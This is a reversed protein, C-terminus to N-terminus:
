FVYLWRKPPAPDDQGLRVYVTMRNGGCITNNRLDVGALLEYRHSSDADFFKFNGTEPDDRAYQPFWSVFVVLLKPRYHELKEPLTRLPSVLGVLDVVYRGSFYGMAGIDNVAIADGAQTVMGAFKALTIQIKNINQVNWGYSEARGPLILVQMALCAAAATMGAHRWRHKMQKMWLDIQNWALTALIMGIPIVYLIYRKESATTDLFLSLALPFGIAYLVLIPWRRITLAAGLLLFPLLLAPEDLMVSRRFPVGWLEGWERLITWTRGLFNLGFHAKVSVTQPMWHGGVAYNFGFFTFLIPASVALRRAMERPPGLIGLLVLFLGDPRAWVGISWFVIALLHRSRVYFALGVCVLLLYLPIEMGSLMGWALPPSSAVLLATTLALLRREPLLGLVTSYIAVSAGIHCLIGFIKGSWIVEHFLLYFLALIFTYLPGTAGAALEGPNFSFGHGTALNRAITAYIWSDDLAYGWEGAIRWEARLYLWAILLVVFALLV